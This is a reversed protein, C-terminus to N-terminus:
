PCYSKKLAQSSNDDDAVAERSAIREGGSCVLLVEAYIFGLLRCVLKQLRLVMFLGGSGWTQVHARGSYMRVM